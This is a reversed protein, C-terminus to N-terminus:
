LGRPGARMLAFPIRGARRARVAAMGLLAEQSHARIAEPGIGGWYTNM